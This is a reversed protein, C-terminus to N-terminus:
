ENTDTKNYYNQLLKMTNKLAKEADFEPDEKLYAIVMKHLKSIQEFEKTKKLYNQPKGIFIGPSNEVIPALNAWKKTITFIVKAKPEIDSNGLIVDGDKNLSWLYNKMNKILEELM